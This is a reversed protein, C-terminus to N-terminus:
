AGECGPAGAMCVVESRRGRAFALEQMQIDGVVFDSFIPEYTYRAVVLVVGRGPDAIPLVRADADALPTMNRTERWVIEPTGDPLFRFSIVDFSLNATSYPMLSLTGAQIAEDIDNQEISIHRTVLDAVVQSAKITKQNSMIGRGMDLTGLLLTILIPFVFAAEMAAVADEGIFYSRIKKRIAQLM